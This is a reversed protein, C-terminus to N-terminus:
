DYGNIKKWCNIISEGSYKYRSPNNNLPTIVGRKRYNQLSTKSIDLISCTRKVCYAGNPDCIPKIETM